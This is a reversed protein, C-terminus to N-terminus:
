ARVHQLMSVHQIKAAVRAATVYYRYAGAALVFVFAWFMLGVGIYYAEVWVAKHWADFHERTEFQWNFLNHYLPEWLTKIWWDFVEV